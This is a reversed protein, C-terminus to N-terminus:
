PAAWGASRTELFPKLDRAFEEASQYRQDPDQRIARLVVADLEPPVSSGAYRSPPTQKSPDHDFPAHGALMVYLVMGMSYLDGRVDVPRGRAAEPSVFIPSGVMTGTRTRFSRSLPAVGTAGPLVRALGFDLVKLVRGHGQSFHLFLNEPKVDRHVVGLAHAASLASLAHWAIDVAEGVPLSLREALEDWLTRGVLLELVVCRRGDATVWSDIVDVVNPHRIRGMAEVELRMRGDGLHAHLLKLAFEKRLLRHEIVWVEGQGGKGLWRVPRYRTGALLHALADAKPGPSPRDNM